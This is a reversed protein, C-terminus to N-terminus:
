EKGAIVIDQYALFRNRGCWSGWRIPETITLGCGRYLDRVLTEDYGVAGELVVAHATRYTGFDHKLDVTSRGALILPLSEENLLLFTIFSRAGRRMVRSIEALYHKADPPLMHTFLSCAYVFDFSEDAYPFRYDGARHKGLLNYRASYVDAHRFHFHDYRRSIHRTCWDTAGKVIDFGEYRGARSVYRTLPVAMRGSGCGVDLVTEDPGLDCLARFYGSFEEGTARHERPLAEPGVLQRLRRPPTLDDRRGLVLDIIDGVFGMTAAKYRRAADRM